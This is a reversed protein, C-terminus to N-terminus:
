SPYQRRVTTVHRIINIFPCSFHKLCRHRIYKVWCVGGGTRGPYFFTLSLAHDTGAERALKSFDGARRLGTLMQPLSLGAIRATALIRGKGHWPGHVDIRPGNPSIRAYDAHVRHRGPSFYFYYRM